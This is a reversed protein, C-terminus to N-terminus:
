FRRKFSGLSRPAVPVGVISTIDFTYAAGAGFGSTDEADSGIAIMGNDIAVSQGFYFNQAGDSPLLKALQTGNSADFVYAGGSNSGLDGDQKSAVAVTGHSISVAHGFWDDFALDDPALKFLQNGTSADFLYAAGAELGDFHSGVVVIGNNIAISWGFQDGSAGDAPLLRFLQQGTHADFLYAAGSDSGNVNSGYAGVAVIGKSIAVSYGFVDGPAGDDPLLRRLQTGSSASFVYASGSYSGNIGDGDAGIVALTDDIAVSVGFDDNSTGDDATLKFLEAGSLADFLYASGAKNAGHFRAGVLAVGRDIAVSHGFRAGAMGDAPVLKFSQAGTIADHLYASGSGSGKDDDHPSGALVIGGDVAISNGFQDSDAGDDALLKADENVARGWAPGAIALVVLSIALLPLYKRPTPFDM